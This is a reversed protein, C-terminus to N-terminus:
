SLITKTLVTKDADDTYNISYLIADYSSNKLSLSYDLMIYDNNQQNIITYRFKHGMPLNNSSKFQGEIRTALLGNNKLVYRGNNTLSNRLNTYDVSTYDLNKYDYSLGSAPNSYIDQVQNGLYSTPLLPTVRNPNNSEPLSALSYATADMNFIGSTNKIDEDTALLDKYSITFKQNQPLLDDAHGKFTQMNFYQFYLAYKDDSQSVGSQIRYPAYMRVRIKGSSPIDLISKLFYSLRDSDGDYNITLTPDILYNNLSPTSGSLDSAGTYVFKQSTKDYFFTADNGNEDKADLSIALKTTPRYNTVNPASKLRGDTLASFGIAVYDSPKVDLEESNIYNTYQIADRINMRTEFKFNSPSGTNTNSYPYFPMIFGQNSIGTSIRTLTTYSYEVNLNNYWRSIRFLREKYFDGSGPIPEFIRFKNYVPSSFNFNPLNVNKTNSNEIVFNRKPLSFYVNQSKSLNKFEDSNVTIVNDIENFDGIKTYTIADTFLDFASIQYSAIFRSNSSFWNKYSIVYFINNKYFAILEYQRCIGELVDYMTKYRGIDDLFANKQVYISDLGLQLNTEEDSIDTYVNTLDYAFDINTYLTTKSLYCSKLLVDLLSVTDNTNFKVNKDTDEDVFDYFRSIKLMAFDSFQLSINIPFIESLVFDNSKVYYGQWIINYSAGSKVKVELLFTDPDATIFEGIDFGSNSFIDQYSSWINTNPNWTKGSLGEGLYNFLLNLTARTSIIPRYSTDGDRDTEIVLPDGNGNIENVFGSYGKKYITAIYQGTTNQYVDSFTLTYKAGYGSYAM